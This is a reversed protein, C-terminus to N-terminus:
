HSSTVGAGDSILLNMQTYHPDRVYEYTLIAEGVTRGGEQNTPRYTEFSLLRTCHFVFPSSPGVFANLEAASEDMKKFKDELFNGIEVIKDLDTCFVNLHLEDTRRWWESAAANPFTYYDFVIYPLEELQNALTPQDQVPVIPVLPLNYEGIYYDAANFLGENQLQAWIYDIVDNFASKSYKNTM